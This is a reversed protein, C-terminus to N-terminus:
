NLEQRLLVIPYITSVIESMPIEITNFLISWLFCNNLYCKSNSTFTKRFSIGESALGRTSGEQLDQLLHVLETVQHAALVVLALHVRIDGDLPLWM